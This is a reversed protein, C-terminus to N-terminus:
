VLWCCIFLWKKSPYGDRKVWAHAPKRSGLFDPSLNRFDVNLALFKIHLNDLDIKLWKPAIWEQFAPRLGFDCFFDSFGRIKPTWFWELDNINVNRLLEDGTSTIILLMDISDAVMKVNSSGIVKSYCKKLSSHGEKKRENTPVGKVLPM